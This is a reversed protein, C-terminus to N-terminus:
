SCASIVAVGRAGDPAMGAPAWELFRTQHLGVLNAALGEVREALSLRELSLEPGWSLLIWGRLPVEPPVPGLQLRRRQGEARRPNREVPRSVQRVRGSSGRLAPRCPRTGALHGARRRDASSAPWRSAQWCRARGSGREGLLEWAGGGMVVAGGHFVVQGRWWAFVAGVTALLPHVLSGDDRAEATQLTATGSARDLRAIGGDEFAITARDRGFVTKVPAPAAQESRIRVLPWHGTELSVLLERSSLGTVESGYAGFAQEIDSDGAVIPEVVQLPRPM